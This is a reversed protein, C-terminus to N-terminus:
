LPLYYQTFQMIYLVVLYPIYAVNKTSNSVRADSECAPHEVVTACTLRGIWTRKSNVTRPSAQGEREAKAKAREDPHVDLHEDEQQHQAISRHGKQAGCWM